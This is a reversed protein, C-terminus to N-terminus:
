GAHRRRAAAIAVVIGPGALLSDAALTTWGGGPSYRHWGGDEPDYAVLHVWCNDYFHRLIEHKAVLADIRGRPAEIVTLLRLPEHYPMEGSLVTQTPLGAQLLNNEPDERCDYSHLFTRTSGHGCFLVLRAFNTTLGMMRLAMTVTAVQDDLTYGIREISGTDHAHRQPELARRDDGM